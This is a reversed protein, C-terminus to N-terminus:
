IKEILDIEYIVQYLQESDIYNETLDYSLNATNLAVELNGEAEIDKITTYLEIQLHLERILARYNDPGHGSGNSVLYLIFPPRPDSKFHHYAVPYGTQKLIINIKALTM